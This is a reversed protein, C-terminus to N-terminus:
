INCLCCLIYLTYTHCFILASTASDKGDNDLVCDKACDELLCRGCACEVWEKDSQDRLDEEYTTFACVVNVMMM